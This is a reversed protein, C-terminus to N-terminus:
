EGPVVGINARRFEPTGETASLMGSIESMEERLRSLRSRLIDEDAEVDELSRRLDATVTHAHAIREDLRAAEDRRLALTEKARAVKEDSYINALERSEHSMQAAVELLAPDLEDLDPHDRLFILRERVSDYERGLKFTGARDAAHATWYARAVDEMGIRFDRHAAELRTIRLASPMFGCLALLLVSLAVQAIPGAALFVTEGFMLPLNLWPIVGAASLLTSGVSVATLAALVSMGVLQTVLQISRLAGWDGSVM